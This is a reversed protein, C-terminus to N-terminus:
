KQSQEDQEFFHHLLLLLCSIVSLAAAAVALGTFVFRLRDHPVIRMPYFFSVIGVLVVVALAGRRLVPRESMVILYFFPAMAVAGALLTVVTWWSLDIAFGTATRRLAQLSAIVLGFAGSFGGIVIGNLLRDDSVGTM